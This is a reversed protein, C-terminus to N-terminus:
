PRKRSKRFQEKADGYLAHTKGVVQEVKGKVKTTENGTAEGVVEKLKGKAEEIRGKVQGKNM